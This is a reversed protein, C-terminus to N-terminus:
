RCHPKFGSNLQSVRFRRRLSESLASLSRHFRFNNGQAHEAGSGFGDLHGGDDAGQLLVRTEIDLDAHGALMALHQILHQLQEAQHGVVIEFDHLGALVQGVDGDGDQLAQAANQFLDLGVDDQDM